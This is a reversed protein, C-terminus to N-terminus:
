LSYLDGEMRRGSFLPQQYMNMSYLDYDNDSSKFEENERIENYDDLFFKYQPTTSVLGLQISSMVIDDKGYAAAFTEDGKSDIFNELQNIYRPYNNVIDGKEVKYKFLVCANRKSQRTMKIGVTKKKDDGYKIHISEDWNRTVYNYMPHQPKIMEVYNNISKLYLSGYTNLEHSLLVQIPNCYMCIFNITKEALSEISVKNSEYIGINSIYNRELREDWEVSWVNIISDDGGGGEALDVTLIVFKRSIDEISNISPHFKWGDGDYMELSQYEVAASHMRTIVKPNVLTNGTIEFTTGFQMYFDEESGLNAIQQQKWKDDRKYWIKNDADWEPVQFWDVKFPKYESDGDEAARYLKYFLNFGNQTSSIIFRARAATITPFINTYFKTVINPQIHAFEDSLVCHYTFSIGSNITTAEAMIRCGNDFVIETENWKRIGPKLHYPLYLFINKIKDLIEKATKLKNGLVLCNKDTNTCAYHLMFLASTTTKGSQRCSLFISLRNKELHKLYDRQYDRLTVKQVGEPTMLQCEKAFVLIDDMCEKFHTIEEPTRQYLLDARLLKTENDFFPKAVLKQGKNLGELAKNISETTWVVRQVKSDDGEPKIPNFKVAM